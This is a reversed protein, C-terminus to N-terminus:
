TILEENNKSNTQRFEQFIILSEHIFYLFYIYTKIWFPYFSLCNCYYFFIAAVMNIEM